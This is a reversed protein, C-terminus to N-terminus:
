EPSFPTWPEGALIAAIREGAQGDGYLNTPRAMTDYLEDCDLLLSVERVIAGEEVGVLRAVGAEVGEPRETTERLVLVPKGLVPAEEQLGGSDTLVLRCRALQELLRPYDFPEHLELNPLGALLERAPGDVNPNPHVPYIWLVEPYREALRRLAAFIRRLPEGFSERRHVTVLVERRQATPPLGPRLGLLADVVTNGVLHIREPAAGEAQLASVARPTPAFHAQALLDVARRNLEEPFPRGLDGTRLGAEVHGVRVQRHFAALAGALATTTDGQVLLWDPAEDALVRDFVSLAESLLGNLSQGPRMLRLDLDPRLGFLRELPELLERHQGSACVRLEVGPRRGLASLVPAM